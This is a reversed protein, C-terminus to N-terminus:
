PRFSMRCETPKKHWTNCIWICKKPHLGRESCLNLHVLDLFSVQELKDYRQGYTMTNLWQGADMAWNPLQVFKIYMHEKNSLKELVQRDVYDDHCQKM